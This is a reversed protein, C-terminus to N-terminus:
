ARSRCSGGGSQAACGHSVAVRVQSGSNESRSIGHESRTRDSRGVPFRLMAANSRATAAECPSKSEHSAQISKRRVSRPRLRSPSTAIHFVALRGSADALEGELRPGGRGIPLYTSAPRGYRRTEWMPEHHLKRRVAHREKRAAGAAAVAHDHRHWADRRHDLHHRRLEVRQLHRLAARLWLPAGEPVNRTACELCM